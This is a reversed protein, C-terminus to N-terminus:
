VCVLMSLLKYESQSEEPALTQLRLLAVDIDFDCLYQYVCADISM